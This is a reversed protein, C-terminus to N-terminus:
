ANEPKPKLLEELEASARELEASAERAQHQMLLFNTNIHALRERLFKIDAELQEKTRVDM